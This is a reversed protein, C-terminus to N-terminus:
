MVGSVKLGRAPQIEGSSPMTMNPMPRVSETLSKLSTREWGTSTSMPMTACNTMMGVTANMRHLTIPSGGSMAMPTMRTPQQGPPVAELTIVKRARPSVARDTVMVLQVVMRAGSTVGPRM